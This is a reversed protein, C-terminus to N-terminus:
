FIQFDRIPREEVIPKEKGLRLTAAVMQEMAKSDFNTQDVFYPLTFIRMTDGPFIPANRHEQESLRFMRHTGTRRDHVEHGYQMTQSLFADPFLLDIQYETLRTTGSNTVGVVLMYDHREGTIKVKEYSLKLQAHASGVL